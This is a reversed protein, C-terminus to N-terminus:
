EIEIDVGAPSNTFRITLVHSKDDYSWDPHNVKVPRSPVRMVVAGYSDTPGEVNLIMRGSALKLEKCKGACALLAPAKPAKGLDILLKRDGPALKVGDIISLKADFLDLYRGKLTIQAQQSVDDLAAAAVYSGRRLVFASQARWRQHVLEFAKKALALVEDAGHKDAALATPNARKVIVYGKDVRKQTDACGVPLGLLELLHDMPTAYSLGDSNWWERVKNAPDTAADLIVLAGGSKVWDVISKHYEAAPPKQGEYSLFLLKYPNLYGKHTVNEMQVPHAAVGAKILPIAQGFFCSLHPDGTFPEFRQFMLTDSVLIGVGQLGSEWKVARQDMNGLANFVTLLETEYDKSIGM